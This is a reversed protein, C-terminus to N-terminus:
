RLFTGVGGRIYRRTDARDEQGWVGKCYFCDPKPMDESLLVKGINGRYIVLRKPERIGSVGVAFETVALSAVVGNISVVSPGARGLCNKEVGYIAERLKRAEPGGLEQQAENMDIQGLCVLCCEGRLAACVRGGYRAIDGAEIDTAIDFYPLRYAACLETLVLRAGESDVCGFVYDSELITRFGGDSVLSDQIKIVEISPDIEKILREGIDVKATGPIKDSARATVYRNRNTDDLEEADILGISRLGLLALQQVVHGGVGGVGVITVKTDRLKRQGEIGFFRISRDDRSHM